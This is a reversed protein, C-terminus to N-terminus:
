PGSSEFSLRLVTTQPVGTSTSSVEGSVTTAIRGNPQQTFTVASPMFTRSVYSARVTGPGVFKSRGFQATCTQNADPTLATGSATVRVSCTDNYAIRTVVGDTRYVTVFVGGLLLTQDRVGNTTAVSSLNGQYRQPVEEPSCAFGACGFTLALFM